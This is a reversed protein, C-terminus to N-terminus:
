IRVEGWLRLKLSYRFFGFLSFQRASCHIAMDFIHWRAVMPVKPMKPVMTKIGGYIFATASFHIDEATSLTAPPVRWMHHVWQRRFVWCHGALSRRMPPPPFAHSVNPM